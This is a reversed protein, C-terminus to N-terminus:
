INGRSKLSFQKGAEAPFCCDCTLHNATWDSLCLAIFPVILYVFYCTLVARIIVDIYSASM